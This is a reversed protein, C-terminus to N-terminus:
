SQDRDHKILIVTGDIMRACAQLTHTYYYKAVVRFSNSVLPVSNDYNLDPWHISFILKM